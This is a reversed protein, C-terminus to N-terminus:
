ATSEEEEEEEDWEEEGEEEEEEYEYEDDEGEEEEDEDGEEIEEEESDDEEEVEEDDVEFPEEGEEYISEEQGEEMEAAEQNTVPRNLNDEEEQEKKMEAKIAMWEELTMYVERPKGEKFKGLIGTEEMMEILRAARGYGIGLRRQVLSVSGRKSELVVRVADDFLDDHHELMSEKYGPKNIPREDMESPDPMSGDSKIQVLAPEFSQQSITKLFKVAKRIEMDDVFCGQARTIKSTRPSLFLMDGHGLLLEGGKQDLVIRSDMGSAVKFAVRCPMNSKILGTVVNAQPRQTALILHIGVARAKQAIRVIAGEVEKNTMMLDALEDVVIVLYPLKKPIRAEAEPTAPEMREKIEDWELKNYSAIDRVGCEALLEYREDMKTVAWELIAAAKSMETVVPCMLHPIDRFMSMEVMKPDVLVLKLEDPRKTYIFSTIISNMCVSKGSGTTGAILMHPMANLDAILPAGSADKGLFMPLKMKQVTEDPQTMLEKIRVVEKKINPVEFGVTDKGAMNSVIRMNQAKMARALDSQVANIRAVKTGPALRVEFMTIVPGTDIGVVEGKIKYERLASELQIAQERVIQEHEDTFSGTADELLDLGPFQYGTLDMEQSRPPEATGQRPKVAQNIPMQKIKERITDANFKRKKNDSVYAGPADAGEEDEEEEYEYEDDGEEYEEEEYEYEYEDEEEDQKRKSRLRNVDADFSEVGAYGGADEDIEDLDVRKKRRLGGGKEGPGAQDKKRWFGFLKPMSLKPKLGGIKEGIAETPLEVKPFAMDRLKSGLWIPVALVFQDVTLVAGVLLLTMMIVFTGPKGFKGILLEDNIIRALAGGSGAEGEYGGGGLLPLMVGAVCSVAVAMVVLGIGRLILQNVTKGVAMMALWVGVGGIVVWSGIGAMRYVKDSLLAGFKGIWNQTVVDPVGFGTAPYDSPNHSLMSALVLLWVAGLAVWGIFRYATLKDEREQELQKKTKRKSAKKKAM